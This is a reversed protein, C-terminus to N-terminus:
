FINIMVQLQFKYEELPRWEGKSVGYERDFTIIKCSQLLMRQKEQRQQKQRIQEDRNSIKRYFRQKM